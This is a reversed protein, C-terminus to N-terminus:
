VVSVSFWISCTSTLTTMMAVSRQFTKSDSFNTTLILIEFVLPSIAVTVVLCSYSEYAAKWKGHEDTDDLGGFPGLHSGLSDGTAAYRKAAM